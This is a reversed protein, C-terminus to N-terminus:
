VVSKRDQWGAGVARRNSVMERLNTIRYRNAHISPTGKETIATQYATPCAAQPRQLVPKM